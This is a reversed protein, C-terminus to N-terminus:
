PALKIAVAGYPVRGDFWPQTASTTAQPLYGSGPVSDVLTGVHANGAVVAFVGYAEIINTVPQIIPLVYYGGGSVFASPGSAVGTIPTLTSSVSHTTTTAVRGQWGSPATAMVPYNTLMSPGYLYFQHGIPNTNVPGVTTGALLNYSGGAGDQAIGTDPIAYPSAAFADDSIDSVTLIQATAQATPNTQRWGLLGLFYTPTPVHCVM